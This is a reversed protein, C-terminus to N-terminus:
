SGTALVGLVFTWGLIDSIQLGGQALTIACASQTEMLLSVDSHAAILGEASAAYFGVGRPLALKSELLESFEELYLTVGLAGVIVDDREIPATLIMAKRGTSRSIVLDGMTTEGSMVRGFYGRDSLNASALGTAVKYYTGDPVLFWANYTLLTSQEFRDILSRMTEWDASRLEATATLVHMADILGSVYTEALTVVSAVGHSADLCLDNGQAFGAIASSLILIGAVLSVWLKKM